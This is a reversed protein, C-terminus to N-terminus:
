GLIIKCAWLVNARMWARYLQIMKALLSARLVETVQQAIMSCMLFSRGLDRRFCIWLSNTFLEGAVVFSSNHYPDFSTIGIGGFEKEM